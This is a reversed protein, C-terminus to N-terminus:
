LTNLLMMISSKRFSDPMTAPFDTKLQWKRLIDTVYTREVKALLNLSKIAQRQSSFNLKTNDKEFTLGTINPANSTRILMWGQQLLSDAMVLTDIDYYQNGIQFSMTVKQDM